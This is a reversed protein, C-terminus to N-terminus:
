TGGAMHAARVASSGRYAAWTGRVHRAARSGALVRGAAARVGPWGPGARVAAGALKRLESSSFNKAKGGGILLLRRAKVGEPKHLLTLELMKGTVEGSAILDAAANLVAKDDTQIQPSHKDSKDGNNTHAGDVVSVVLCETEIQSPAATNLTTKM